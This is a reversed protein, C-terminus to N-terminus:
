VGSWVTAMCNIEHRCRKKRGGVKEKVSASSPISGVTKNLASTKLRSQHSRRGILKSSGGAKRAKGRKSDGTGGYRDAIDFNYPDDNGEGGDRAFMTSPESKCLAIVTLFKSGAGDTHQHWSSVRSYQMRHKREDHSKVPSDSLVRRKVIAPSFHIKDGFNSGDPIPAM